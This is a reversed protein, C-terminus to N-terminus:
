RLFNNQQFENILRAKVGGDCSLYNLQNSKGDYKQKYKIPDINFALINEDRM